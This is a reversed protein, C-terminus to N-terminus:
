SHPISSAAALVFLREGGTPLIPTLLPAQSLSLQKFDGLCQMVGARGPSVGPAQRHTFAESGEATCLAPYFSLGQM